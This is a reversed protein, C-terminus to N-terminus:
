PEETALMTDPSYLKSLRYVHKNLITSVQAIQYTKLGGISEQAQRDNIPKSEDYWLDLM